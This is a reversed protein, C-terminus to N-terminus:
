GGRHYAYEGCPEFDPLICLLLCLLKVRLLPLLRAPIMLSVHVLTTQVQAWLSIFALASWGEGFIEGLADRLSLLRPKYARRLWFAWLSPPLCTWQLHNVQSRIAEDSLQGTGAKSVADQATSAEGMYNQMWLESIGHDDYGYAQSSCFNPKLEVFVLWATTVRLPTPTAPTNPANLEERLFFCFM